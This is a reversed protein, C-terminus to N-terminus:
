KKFRRWLLGALGLLILIVTSPEPVSGSPIVDYMIGYAVNHSRNGWDSYVNNTMSATVDTWAVTNTPDPQSEISTLSWYGRIIATPGTDYDVELMLGLTEGADWEAADIFGVIDPEEDHSETSFIIGYVSYDPIYLFGFTIDSEQEEYGNDWLRLSMMDDDPEAPPLFYVAGIVGEFGAATEDDGHFLIQESTPARDAYDLTLYHGDDNVDENGISSQDEESMLWVSSLPNEGGSEGFYESNGGPSYEPDNSDFTFDYATTGTDFYLRDIYGIQEAYVSMGSLMLGALLSIILKIKITNM